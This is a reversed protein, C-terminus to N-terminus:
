NRAHVFVPVDMMRLSYKILKLNHIAYGISILTVIIMFGIELTILTPIMTPYKTLSGEIQSILFKTITAYFAIKIQFTTLDNRTVGYGIVILLTLCLFGSETVDTFGSKCSELFNSQKVTELTWPCNSLFQIDTLASLLCVCLICSFLKM